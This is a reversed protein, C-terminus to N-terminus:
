RSVTPPASRFSLLRMGSYIWLDEFHEDPISGDRIPLHHWEMGHASAGAQLQDPLVKLYRLESDEMLTVLAAAGFSHIVKLDADM